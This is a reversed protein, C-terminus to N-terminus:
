EGEEEENEAKTDVAESDDKDEDPGAESSSAKAISPAEGKAIETLREMTKEGMLLREVSSRMEDTIDPEESNDDRDSLLSQIREEV